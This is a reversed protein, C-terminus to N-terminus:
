ESEDVGRATPPLRGTFLQRWWSSIKTSKEEAEFRPRADDKTLHVYAGELTTQQTAELIEQVTGNGRIDGNHIIVIRTCIQEAEALQHTSYVVTGGEDKLKLILKKLTRASTIDLGATPEDLLLLHPSHALARLLATKQRMGRSFGKTHRALSDTMGLPSALQSTRRWAFEDSVGYLRSHYRINEWATLRSYLGTSEPVVGIRQRAKEITEGNEFRIEGESPSYVGSLLRLLTTKGAGNSGVLGIIEGKQIDLDISNLVRLDGFQKSVNRATLLIEVM